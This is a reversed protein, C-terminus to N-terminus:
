ATAAFFVNDGKVLDTEGTLVQDLDLHHDQAYQREEDDRHGCDVNFRRGPVEACSGNDRGGPSGGVGMAVDIGTRQWAPTVAAQSTAM